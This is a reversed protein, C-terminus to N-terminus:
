KTSIPFTFIRTGQTNSIYMYGKGPELTTMPGRWSSGNYFANSSQAKIKDGSVAFGAFANTLNMSQDFPFGIWNVGNVITIPHEVPNIPVGVLTIECPAATNILYMKAVDWTLGGSWRQTAPNYSTNQTHSKITIATGPLVELLTAKLDDLTIDLYTSFWNWGQNLNATQTAVDRVLRVAHGSYRADSWLGLFDDGFSVAWSWREDNCRYSSWYWARDSVFHISTEDRFGTAPLFVAGHLELTIWTSATIMNSNFSAENNNTNNLAYYSIDWNDPLLIIGKVDNVIAKAYRIGSITTRDQLVYKWEWYDLTHWLNEYNGGNSIQNYGWDAKGTQDYLSNISNGYAFYDSNDTSISWPQYCVAGHDYGSTGWGFLDIWGNYTPSINANDEGIYDYQNTAFRWTDTSAQYQLNGQSFYVQKSNSVSFLGNIAGTPSHSPTSSNGAFILTYSVPQVVSLTDVFRLKYEYISDGSNPVLMAEQWINSLPVVQNDNNRTCSVLEYHNRGPDETEGYNWGIRSPNVTLTVITDHYTVYKDFSASEVVAVSTKGGDSFYISDPYNNEDPIDNVLFDNIGDTRTGFSHIPRTLEHIGVHSVLSLEPNNCSNNHVVQANYSVMHALLPSTFLWEGVKTQGSEINGFVISDLGIQLGIGEIYAGYLGFDDVDIPLGQDNRVIVPKATELIVNKAMGVGKNWIRVALEAPISPETEPTLLNDGYVDRALFYDIHLDPSPHVTLYTPPRLELTCTVSNWPDVFTFNGGFSYVVSDTPAAEPTPIFLIKVMGNLGAALTGNGDIGTVGNLSMTSIQFLNTRDNGEEDKIIFDLGIGTVATTEHGNHVVFTGIFAERTMTLSQSFQIGIPVPVDPIQYIVLPTSSNGSASGGHGGHGPHTPAGHGGIGSGMGGSSGSGGGSGGSGSGGSSGGFDGGTGGGLSPLNHNSCTASESLLTYAIAQNYMLEEGSLYSYRVRSLAWEGCGIVLNNKRTVVCPIEVTSQAHLTDIHDYLATFLYYENEPVYLTLNLADILGYNTIVYNFTYADEFEPIRQPAGLTVVPIPVDVEYEINLTINYEDQIETPEVMWGYSVGQYQLFVNMQKTVGAEILINNKYGSHKDASVNLVYYGEAISDVSFSGSADTYGHAVVEHSYYGTLTVEAGEVHPGNGNNTNTTFEDTVDIVFTGSEESVATITYPLSVADAHECNIMINGTYQALPLDNGPSLRLTFVASENMEISSLTTEGVVSMWEVNSPLNVTIAGTSAQGYNSLTIDITKSKGKTMTTNLASPSANLAGWAEECYFWITFEAEAGQDCTAKLRVEQYENGQTVMTGLATYTLFGETLGALDMSTFTIECGNPASLMNVQINTLAFSNRNIIKVLGTKPINETVDCLIWYDNVVLSDVITKELITMGLINFDDHVETNNNGVVGSNVTYYGSELPLPEFMASFTGNEDTTASLTRRWDMVTVGIEVEMNVVPNNEFDTVTGHIPIATNMPYIDEDVFTNFVYAIEFNAVLNRDESVTFSYTADTSVVEGNEKWNVFTYGVNPIAILTCTENLEYTGAGTVTGGDTPNAIATIEISSCDEQINTFESWGQTNIYITQSGCPVFVPISYNSFAYSDLTPPTTNNSHIEIFSTYYFMFRSIAEVDNGIVLNGDCNNFPPYGGIIWGGFEPDYTHASVANYYVTSFNGCNYFANWDIWTVSNPIILDGTFGTCNEFAGFEIRTVSNPIILDGTFGTCGSFAGNGISTVSNPITLSGTFGSCYYFAHNGISTVSNPITLSGTMGSCGRFAYDGISTVLYTTGDYQVSEPLIINGTPKTYGSWYDDYNAEGPCTLEVYHNTVDTINYYLTQGTSCVASFDYAYMKTLGAASLLLIILVSHLARKWHLIRVNM